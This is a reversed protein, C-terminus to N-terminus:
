VLVSTVPTTRERGVAGFGSKAMTRNRGLPCRASDLYPAVEAVFDQELTLARKLMAIEEAEEKEERERILRDRVANYEGDLPGTYSMLLNPILWMGPVCPRGHPWVYNEDNDRLEEQLSVELKMRDMGPVGGRSIVSYLHFGPGSAQPGGVATWRDYVIEFHPDVRKLAVTLEIPVECGTPKAQCFEHRYCKALPFAGRGNKWARERRRRRSLERKADLEDAVAIM